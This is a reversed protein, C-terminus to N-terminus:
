EKLYTSRNFNNLQLTINWLQFTVDGRLKAMANNQDITRKKDIDGEIARFM